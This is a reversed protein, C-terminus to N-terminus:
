QRPITVPLKKMLNGLSMIALLYLWLMNLYTQFFLLHPWRLAVDELPIWFDTM